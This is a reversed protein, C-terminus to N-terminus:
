QLKSRNIAWFNVHNECRICRHPWATEQWSPFTWRMCCTRRYRTGDPNLEVAHAIARRPGIVWLYRRGSSGEIIGASGASAVLERDRECDHRLMMANYVFEDQLYADFASM